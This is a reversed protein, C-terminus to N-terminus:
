HLLRAMNISLIYINNIFLFNLLIFYKEYFESYKQENLKIKEMKVYSAPLNIILCHPLPLRIISLFTIPM